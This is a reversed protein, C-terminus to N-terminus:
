KQSTKEIFLFWDNGFKDTFDGITGFSQEELPHGVKGGTSLKAFLTEGEEKSNCTLTLVMVNGKIVGESGILDSGLLIVMDNKLEAHFIQEKKDPMHEAMMSQGITTFTLEGGLCDKYFEFAEKANGNFRLYPNLRM